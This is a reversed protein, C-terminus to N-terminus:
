LMRCRSKELQHTSKLWSKSRRAPRNCAEIALSKITPFDSQLSTLSGGTIRITLSPTNPACQLIADM